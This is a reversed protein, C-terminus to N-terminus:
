NNFTQGASIFVIEKTERTPEKGMDADSPLIGILQSGKFNLKLQEYMAILLAQRAIEQRKLSNSEWTKQIRINEVFVLKEPDLENDEIFNTFIKQIRSAAENFCSFDLCDSNWFEDAGGSLIISDFGNFNDDILKNNESNSFVEPPENSQLRVFVFSGSQEFVYDDITSCPILLIKKSPVMQDNTDYRAPNQFKSRCNENINLSNEPQLEDQIRGPGNGCGALASVSILLLKVLNKM